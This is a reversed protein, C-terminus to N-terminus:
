FEPDWDVRIESADLDVSVIVEDRVYPILCEREGVVVLVDNAGTELLHDVIGLEVGSVTIVKLGLLDDWYYEGQATAELQSRRIAISAGVLKRAVERDDCGELLAIVGKGHVQFDQVVLTRWAGDV